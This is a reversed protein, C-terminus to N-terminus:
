SRCLCRSSLTLHKRQGTQPRFYQARASRGVKDRVEAMTKCEAYPVAGYSVTSNVQGAQGGNSVTSQSRLAGALGGHGVATSDRSGGKTYFKVTKGASMIEWIVLALSHIDSRQTYAQGQLVQYQCHSLCLWCHNLPSRDVRCPVSSVEPAQWYICM